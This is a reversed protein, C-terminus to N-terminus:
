HSLAHSQTDRGNKNSGDGKRSRAFLIVALVAVIIVSTGIACVAQLHIAPIGVLMGIIYPVLWALWVVTSFTHFRRRARQSGRKYTFTAWLAHVLMLVIAVIGTIAHVGFGSAASQSAINSMTLTGTTDCALGIWFLLVYKLSLTGHRREGFVGWTYFFLALSIAIAAFILEASM